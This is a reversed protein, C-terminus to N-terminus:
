ARRFQRSVGIPSQLSRGRGIGRRKRQDGRGTEQLRKGADKLAGVDDRMARLGVVRVRKPIPGLRRSTADDDGLDGVACRRDAIRHQGRGIQRRDFGAGGVIQVTEGSAVPAQGFIRGTTAQAFVQGSLGVSAAIAIALATHRVYAKKIPTMKKSNM